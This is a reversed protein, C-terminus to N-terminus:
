VGTWNDTNNHSKDQPEEQECLYLKKEFIEIIIRNLREEFSQNQTEIKQKPSSGAKITFPSEQNLNATLTIPNIMILSGANISFEGYTLQNIKWRLFSQHALEINQPKEKQKEQQTIKALLVFFEDKTKPQPYGLELTHFVSIHSTNFFHEIDTAKQSITDQYKAIEQYLDPSNKELEAALQLVEREKNTRETQQLSKEAQIKKHTELLSM